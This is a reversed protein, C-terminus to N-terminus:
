FLSIEVKNSVEENVVPAAVECSTNETRAQESSLSVDDEEYYHVAMNYVVEDSLVAVNSSDKQKKAEGIIYASCQAITKDKNAYKVAFLKDKSAFTDLYVKLALQFPTLQPANAAVAKNTAATKKVAATNKKAM